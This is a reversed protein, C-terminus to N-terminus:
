LRRVLKKLMNFIRSVLSLLTFNPKQLRLHLGLTNRNWSERRETISVPVTNETDFNRRVQDDKPLDGEESPVDYIGRSGMRSRDVHLFLLANAISGKERLYQDAEFESIRIHSRRRALIILTDKRLKQLNSM